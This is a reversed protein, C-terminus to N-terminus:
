LLMYLCQETEREIYIDTLTRLNFIGDRTSKKPVVRHRCQKPVTYIATTKKTVHSM